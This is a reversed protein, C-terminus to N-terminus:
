NTQQMQEQFSNGDEDTELVPIGIKLNLTLFHAPTLTIPSQIDDATYVLPRSNVVAETEKLVTLLQENGLSAKGITKRLTRKVLGVMRKYFGGM